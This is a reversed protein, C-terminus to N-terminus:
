RSRAVMRTDDVVLLVQAIHIFLFFDLQTKTSTLGIARYPRDVQLQFPSLRFSRAPAPIATNIKDM